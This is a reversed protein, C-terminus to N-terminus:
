AYTKFIRREWVGKQKRRSGCPPADSIHRAV